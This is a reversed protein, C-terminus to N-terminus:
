RLLFERYLGYCSCSHEGTDLELKAGAPISAFRLPLTLDLITSGYKLTCATGSLKLKERAQDVVASLPQM